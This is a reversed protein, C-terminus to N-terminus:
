GGGGGGRMCRMCRNSRRGRGRRFQGGSGSRPRTDSPATGALDPVANGTAGGGGGARGGGVFRGSRCNTPPLLLYSVVTRGLGERGHCLPRRSRKQGQCLERGAASGAEAWAVIFRVHHPHSIALGEQALNSPQRGSGRATKTSPTFARPFPANHDSAEKTATTGVTVISSAAALTSKTGSTLEFKNEFVLLREKM